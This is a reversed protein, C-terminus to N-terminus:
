LPVQSSRPFQSPRCDSTQVVMSPLVFHSTLQLVHENASSFDPLASQNENFLTTPVCPISGQVTRNFTPHEVASSRAREGIRLRRFKLLTQRRTLGGFRM